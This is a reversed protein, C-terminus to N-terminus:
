YINIRTYKNTVTVKMYNSFRCVFSFLVCVCVYFGAQFPTPLVLCFPGVEYIIAATDGCLVPDLALAPRETPGHYFYFSNLSLFSLSESHGM